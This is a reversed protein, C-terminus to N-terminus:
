LLIRMHTLEHQVVRSVKPVRFGRQEKFSVLGVTSLRFLAERITSASCQYDKRLLEPQLKLDAVFGGAVLRQHLLKYVDIEEVM